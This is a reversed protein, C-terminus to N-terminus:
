VVLALELGIVLEDAHDELARFARVEHAHDAGLLRHVGVAFGEVLPQLVEFSKTKAQPKAGEARPRFASFRLRPDSYNLSGNEIEIGVARASGGCRPTGAAPRSDPARSAGPARAAPSSPRAPGA